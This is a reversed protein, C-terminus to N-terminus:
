FKFTNKKGKVPKGPFHLSAAESVREGSPARATVGYNRPYEALSAESVVQSTGPPGASQLVPSYEEKSGSNSGAENGAETLSLTEKSLTQKGL